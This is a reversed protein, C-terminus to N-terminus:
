PIAFRSGIAEGTEGAGLEAVKLNFSPKAAAQEM